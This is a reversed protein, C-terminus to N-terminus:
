IFDTYGYVYVLATITVVGDDSYGVIQQLAGTPMELRHFGTYLGSTLITYPTGGAGPLVGSGGPVFSITIGGPVGDTVNVLLMIHSATAPIYPPYCHLAVVAGGGLTMAVGLTTMNELSTYTRQTELGQCDNRLLLMTASTRHWSIRRFIDYGGENFTTGDPILLMRHPRDGISSGIVYLGYWTSPLLSSGTQIGGPGVTYISVTQTGIISLSHYSNEARAASTVSTTGVVISTTSRADIKFGHIFGAPLSMCYPYTAISATDFRITPSPYGAPWTGTGYDEWGPVYASMPITAYNISASAAPAQLFVYYVSPLVQIILARPLNGSEGSDISHQVGLTSTAPYTSVSISWVCSTKKNVDKSYVRILCVDNIGVAIAYARLWTSPTLYKGICAGGGGGRGASITGSAVISAVGTMDGADNVIVTSNKYLAGSVGDFRVLANNTGPGGMTTMGVLASGYRLANSTGSDSWLTSTGGPNGAVSRLTTGNSTVVLPVSMDGADNVTVGSNKMVGGSVGSFRAVATDTSSLPGKVLPIAGLRPQEATGSDLWITRSTGPNSALPRFTASGTEIRGVKPNMNPPYTTTNSTDFYTDLPDTSYGDPWAGTGSALWAPANTSLPIVMRASSTADPQALMLLDVSSALGVLYISMSLEGVITGNTGEGGGYVDDTTYRIAYNAPLNLVQVNYVAGSTVVLAPVVDLVLYGSNIGTIIQRPLTMGYLLPGVPTSGARIGMATPPAPDFVGGTLVFYLLIKGIPRAPRFSQWIGLPGPLMSTPYSGVVIEPTERSTYIRMAFDAATIADNYAYGGDYGGTLSCGIVTNNFNYAHMTLGGGAFCPITPSISISVEQYTDYILSGPAITVPGYMLPFINLDPGIIEFQFNWPGPGSVKMVQLVIRDICRGSTCTFTQYLGSAGLPITGDCISQNVELIEEGGPTTIALLRSQNSISGTETSYQINIGALLASSGAIFSQICTDGSDVDKTYVRSLCTDNSGVSMTYYKYWTGGTVLRGQILGSTAALSNGTIAGSATINVAGSVDGTGSIVVPSNKVVGGSTGDFCAIADSTSSAPGKILAAAGIRPQNSTSSDIWLTNNDGPNVALPRIIVGAVAATGVQLRANPPYTATDDTDFVTYLPSSPVGAPWVDTGYDQWSPATGSIPIEVNAYDSSTSPIKIFLMYEPATTAATYIKMALDIDGPIGDNTAYGLPYPNTIACGMRCTDFNHLYITYTNGIVIPVAPSLTFVVEVYAGSGPIGVYVPGFLRTGGIGEGDRIEMMFSGPTPPSSSQAYLNIQCLPDSSAATFIQWVNPLGPIYDTLLSQDVMINMTSDPDKIALLHAQYADQGMQIDHETTLDNSGVTTSFAARRIANSTAAGSKSRVCVMCADNENAPMRYFMYWTGGPIRKGRVVGINSAVSGDATVNGTAALHRVGSVDGLDTISMPSAKVVGGSTGDFRLVTDATVATSPGKVISAAGIRPQNSTTSDVWITNSGGPNTAVPRMIAGSTATTGVQIATNPPYAASDDTDFRIVRDVLYDSPWVGTGQDIWLPYSSTGARSQTITVTSSSSVAAPARVYIDLNPSPTSVLQLYICGPEPGLNTTLTQAPPPIFSPSGYLEMRQDTSTVHLTYTDGVTLTVAPVVAISFIGFPADETLPGSDFLITGGIGSGERIYVEFLGLSPLVAGGHLTITNVPRGYAPTFTQALWIFHSFVDGLFYYNVEYPDSIFPSLVTVRAQNADPGMDIDHQVTVGATSTSTGIAVNRTCISETSTDKTAIKMLLQDATGVTMQYVKWWHSASIEKGKIVGSALEIGAAGSIHNNDAVEVATSKVTGGVTGDFRPITNAVVASAPGKIITAPGIRPQNATGSDVWITNADRPNAAIPEMVIATPDLIAVGSMNGLDDVTVVSDQLVGGSTGNFRPLAHDTSAAPGKVLSDAGIRPQNAAGSDVWVTTADGPNAVVPRLKAGSAEVTGVRLDTNPPYTSEDSTDFYIDLPDTSYGTPWLGTGQSSWAPDNVSQPISVRAYSSADSLVKILIDVLPDELTYIRMNLDFNIIGNSGTGGSYVDGSSCIFSYNAPISTLHITYMNGATISIPPDIDAIIYSHTMDIFVQRAIVPGYLLAGAIGDGDRIAITVDGFGIPDLFTSLFVKSIPRSPTFSQWIGSPGSAATSDDATVIIEASERSTYVKMAWDTTTITGNSAYGGDYGGSMSCGIEVNTLIATHLTLKMGPLCPITPDIPIIVERFVDIDPSTPTITVPLLLVSGTNNDGDRIGFQFSWPGVAGVKKVQLVVANICRGSVNTITQWLGPPGEPISGDLVSQEIELIDDTSPSIVAVVRSHSAAPGSDVKHQADITNSSSNSGFMVKRSCVVGTSSDKTYIDAVCSDNTGIQMQYFKYWTGGIVDRGQIAGGTATLSSGTVDGTATLSGVGTMDGTDSITVVSNKLQAGSTGDFRVIANDTASSAGLIFSRTGFKPQNASTSDSWFTTTDGPNTDVPRIKAGSAQITGIRLDTNPPYNVEDDTDFLIHFPDTSYGTPWAGTGASTWLPDNTSSPLEVYTSSGTPAYILTDYKHYGTFQFTLKMTLDETTIGSRYWYGDPYPSGTGTGPYLEAGSTVFYITYSNGKVMPVPPTMAVTIWGYGNLPISSGDLTVPGHLIPGTSGIGDRIYVPLSAGMPILGRHFYVSLSSLPFNTPAKFTQYVYPFGLAYPGNSILQEILLPGLDGPNVASIIRPLVSNDGAQVDHQIITASSSADANLLVRRHGIPGTSAGKTRTEIVCSNNITDNTAYILWWTGGAVLRGRIVGDRSTMSLVDAAQLVSESGNLTTKYTTM